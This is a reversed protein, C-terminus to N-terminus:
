KSWFERTRVFNREAEFIARYFATEDPHHRKLIQKITRAGIGRGAHAIIAKKGMSLILAAVQKARQVEKKEDTTLKGQNKAKQLLKRLHRHSYYTSTLFRSQCKPCTPYEEINKVTKVGEWQTCWGCVLRVKKNLLREKITDIIAGTPQDPMVLDGISFWELNDQAIPSFGVQASVTSTQIEIKGQQIMTLVNISQSVAFKEIQIEHFTEQMVPTDKMAEILRPLYIQDARANKEIVGFRKCVSIFHWKFLNTTLIIKNLLAEIYKPKLEELAMVIDEATIQIRSPITLIIVYADIKVAISYGFRLSLLGAILRGLTQNVKSGFFTHIFLLPSQKVGEIVIKTHTPESIKWDRQKKIRESILQHSQDSIHYQKGINELFQTDDRHTVFKSVLRGVKQAINYPVPIMSGVWSPANADPNQIPEVTVIEEDSDTNVIRWVRGRIIFESGEQGQRIIYSEDLSGIFRNTIINKVGYRRTNPIASLNQYYYLRTKRTRRFGNEAFKILYLKDLFTLVELLKAITLRQFPWSRKLLVLTENISIIDNDLALGALQISLIDLPAKVPSQKEIRQQNAEEIIVGSELVDDLNSALLIGKSVRDFKHGSRGVRQLLKSVQRPSGIQIVLDIQGVDIGLELSSTCIVAQLNGEKLETEADMRIKKSLSGHHTSLRLHPFEQKLQLSLIEARQRTNTFILTSTHTEILEGIRKILATTKPKWRGRKKQLIDGELPQPYEISITMIKKPNASM